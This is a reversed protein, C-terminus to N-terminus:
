AEKRGTSTPTRPLETLSGSGPVFRPIAWRLWSVLEAWQRLQKERIQVPRGTGPGEGDKAWIRCSHRSM